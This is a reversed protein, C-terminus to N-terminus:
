ANLFVDCIEYFPRHYICIFNLRRSDAIILVIRPKDNEAADIIATTGGTNFHAPM